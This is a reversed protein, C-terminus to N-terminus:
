ANGGHCKKYKKGSGCPCPDNRGVVPVGGGTPRTKPLNLRGPPAGDRDGNPLPPAAAAGGDVLMDTDSVSRRRPAPPAARRPPPAPVAGTNIEVQFKFLRETFTARIDQMLDVFMDFAEQKYEILPDKQGWARFGIANRLQDLDYLHDKWKEDLVAYMVHSLLKESLDPIGYRKGLQEWSSLRGQFAGRGADKLLATLGDQNAVKQHDAIGPASILYKHLLDSEVAKRDWQNPDDGANEEAFRTVAAEIMKVAEAKLEEGGELAFLRLGYVVERQQNM